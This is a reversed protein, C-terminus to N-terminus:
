ELLLLIQLQLLHMILTDIYEILENINLTSETKPLHKNFMDNAYEYKALIENLINKIQACLYSLQSPQAIGMQPSKAKRRRAYKNLKHQQFLYFYNIPRFIVVKHQM